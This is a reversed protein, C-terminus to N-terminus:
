QLNLQKMEDDPVKIQKRYRRRDLRATVRLGTQTRTGRLFALMTPLDRLPHGAQHLLRGV